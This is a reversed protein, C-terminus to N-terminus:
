ATLYTVSITVAKKDALLKPIPFSYYPNVHTGITQSEFGFIHEKTLQYVGSFEMGLRLDDEKLKVMARLVDRFNFGTVWIEVIVVSLAHGRVLGVNHNM